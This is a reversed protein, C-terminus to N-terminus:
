GLAKLIDKTRSLEMSFTDSDKKIKASSKQLPTYDAVAASM